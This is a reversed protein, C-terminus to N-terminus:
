PHRRRAAGTAVTSRRSRAGASRVVRGLFARRAAGTALDEESATAVGRIARAFLGTGPDCSPSRAKLIWGDLRLERVRRRAFRKMAGTWDAGTEVGIMRGRALRVPERPVGMGVEWEPCVSVLEARARFWRVLAAARKHGGDFRVREGLLCSSFGIRPKM